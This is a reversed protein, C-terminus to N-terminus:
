LGVIILSICTAPDLIISHAPILVAQCMILGAGGGGGGWGRGVGGKWSVMRSM